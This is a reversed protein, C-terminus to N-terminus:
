TEGTDLLLRGLTDFAKKHEEGVIGLVRTLPLRVHSAEEKDAVVAVILPVVRHSDSKMLTLAEVALDANKQAFFNFCPRSPSPDLRGSARLTLESPTPISALEGAVEIM